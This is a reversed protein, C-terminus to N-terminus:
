EDEHVEVESSRIAAVLRKRPELLDADLSAIVRILAPRLGSGGDVDSLLDGAGSRLIELVRIEQETAELKKVAAGFNM